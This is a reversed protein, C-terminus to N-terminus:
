ASFQEEITPATGAVTTRHMDRVEKTDRFRTARHMTQRNDWIVLDHPQWKHRYVFERQTAHETLERLLARAEPVPMGVIDGAHASLYLSKKGTDPHKRVLQQLVPKFNKKEGESINTFGLVGRSHLLSHECVLDDIDLKTQEDLADYAARMNAFETDGGQAPVVRGSLMSYKAPIIKFSSDSHWLQNGLNFMRQRDDRQYLNSDRDLNSLDAVGRGMERGTRQGINSNAGPIELDGFRRSFALQQEDNIDQGPLVLVAFKNIEADVAAIDEDPITTTLDIGTAEGAFVLHLPRTTIPM